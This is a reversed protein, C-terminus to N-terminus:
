EQDGEKPPSSKKISCNPQETFAKSPDVALGGRVLMNRGILVDYNFNDRNALNVEDEVLIGAVCFSMRIVPRRVTGGKKTKIRVWREVPYKLQRSDVEEGEKGAHNIELKFIITEKNSKRKKTKKKAVNREDRKDSADTKAGDGEDEEEDEPSRVEIITAHISSTAAGTDLKAKLKLDVAPIYINEVYGVVFRADNSDSESKAMSDGSHTIAAM